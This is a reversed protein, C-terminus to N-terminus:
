VSQQTHNEGKCYNKTPTHAYSYFKEHCIDKLLIAEM